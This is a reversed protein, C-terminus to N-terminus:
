DWSNFLLSFFRRKEGAYKYKQATIQRSNLAKFAAHFRDTKKNMSFKQDLFRQKIANCLVMPHLDIGPMDHDSPIGWVWGANGACNSRPYLCFLGSSGSKVGM